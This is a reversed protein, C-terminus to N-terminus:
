RNIKRWVGEGKTVRDKFYIFADKFCVFLCFVSLATPLAALANKHCLQLGKMLYKSSRKRNKLSHLHTQSDPVRLVCSGRGRERGTTAVFSFCSLKDENQGDSM